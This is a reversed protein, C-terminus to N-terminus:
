PFITWTQTVRTITNAAAAEESAQRDIWSLTIDYMNPDTGNTCAGPVGGSTVVCATGGPLHNAIADYWCRLETNTDSATSDCPTTAPDPPANRYANLRATRTLPDTDSGNVRMRDIIDYALMTAQSRVYADHNYRLGQAQLAAIGLLGIALIIMSILVEILFFGQSSRRNQLASPAYYRLM